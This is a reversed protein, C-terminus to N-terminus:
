KRKKFAQKHKGAEEFLDDLRLQRSGGPQTHSTLEKDGIPLRKKLPQNDSARVGLPALVAVLM